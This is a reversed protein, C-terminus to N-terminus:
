AIVPKRAAVTIFHAHRRDINGIRAPLPYYGAGRVAAVEFGHLTLLELLARLALIRHHQMAFVAGEQGSFFALPNGVGGAKFTINTLSFPQWGIVLSAVNHWSAANETSVVATGGPKTIRFLEELFVDTEYLHEIVQNSIVVDFADSPLSLPGNLDSRDVAFGRARVSEVNPPHTEVVVVSAAGVAEAVEQTLRGDGCGLDCLTTDTRGKVAEKALAVIARENATIAREFMRGLVRRLPAPLAM